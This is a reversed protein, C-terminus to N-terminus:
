SNTEGTKQGREKSDEMETVVRLTLIAMLTVVLVMMLNVV